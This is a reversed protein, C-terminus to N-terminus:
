RVGPLHCFTSTPSHYFSLGVREQQPRHKAPQPSPPGRVGEEEGAAGGARCSGGQAAEERDAGGPVRREVRM